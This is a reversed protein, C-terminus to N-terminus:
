AEADKKLIEVVRNAARVLKPLHMEAALDLFAQPDFRAVTQLRLSRLYELSDGDTELYILDLLAKEPSAIFSKQNWGLDVLSYGKFIASQIHRFAFVGLSTKWIGPRHGTVSITIATYEPIMGYYSLASQLSIYSGSVMRNAVFFPHPKMKQYPPALTYLGRRLQIIRGSRRWRSLQKRIDAPDAPGSLLLFSEFVPEEGVIRLLEDFEM